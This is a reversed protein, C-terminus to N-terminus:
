ELAPAFPLVQALNRGLLHAVRQQVHDDVLAVGLKGGDLLLAIQKFSRRGVPIAARM